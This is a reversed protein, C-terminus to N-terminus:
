QQLFPQVARLNTDVLTRRQREPENHAMNVHHQNYLEKFTRHYSEIQAESARGLFHHREAFELSHKLMHLKPFAAQGTEASWHQQIDDVAARWAEIEEM